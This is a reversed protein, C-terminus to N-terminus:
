GAKKLADFNPRIRSQTAATTVGLQREAYARLVVPRGNADTEYVWARQDLWRRQCDSRTRGTLACLEEQALFLSM